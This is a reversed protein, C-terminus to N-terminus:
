IPNDAVAAGGGNEFPYDWVKECKLRFRPLNLLTM